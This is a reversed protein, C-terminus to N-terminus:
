FVGRGTSALLHASSIRASAKGEISILEKVLIDRNADIHQTAAILGISALVEGKGHFVPTAIASVGPELEEVCFAVRTQAVEDLESRLESM